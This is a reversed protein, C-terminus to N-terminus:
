GESEELAVRAKRTVVKCVNDFTMGTIWFGTAVLIFGVGSIVIIALFVASNVGSTRISGQLLIALNGLVMVGNAIAFYRFPARPRESKGHPVVLAAICSWWAWGLLGLSIMAAVYYSSGISGILGYQTLWGLVGMDVALFTYGTLILIRAARVAPWETKSAVHDEEVRSLEESSIADDRPDSSRRSILIFGTAAVCLGVIMVVWNAILPYSQRLTLVSDYEQATYGLYGFALLLNASAFLRLSRWLRGRTNACQMVPVISWWGWAIISANVLSAFEFLRTGGVVGFVTYSEFVTLPSTM